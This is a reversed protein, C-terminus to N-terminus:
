PELSKRHCPSNRFCYRFGLPSTKYKPRPDAATEHRLIHFMRNAVIKGLYTFIWFFPFRGIVLISVVVVGHSAMKVLLISVVVIVLMSVVVVVVHIVLISVVVIVLLPQLQGMERITYRSVKTRRARLDMKTVM